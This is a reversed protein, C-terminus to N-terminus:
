AKIKIDGRDNGKNIGIKLEKNRCSGEADKELKFGTEGEV